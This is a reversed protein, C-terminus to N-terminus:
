NATKKEEVSLIRKKYEVNPDEWDDLHLTTGDKHFAFVSMEIASELKKILVNGAFGVVNRQQKAYDEGSKLTEILGKQKLYRKYNDLKLKKESVPDMLQFWLGFIFIGFTVILLSLQLYDLYIVSRLFVTIWLCVALSFVFTRQRRAKTYLYDIQLRILRDSAEKGQAKWSYLIPFWPSKGIKYDDWEKLGEKLGKKLFDVPFNYKNAIAEYDKEAIKGFTKDLWKLETVAIKFDEESGFHMPQLSLSKM